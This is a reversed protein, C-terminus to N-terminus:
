SGGGVPIGVLKQAALAEPVTYDNADCLEWFATADSLFYYAIQDLRQNNLRPYYGQVPTTLRLPLRACTVTTGNPLTTQYTTLNAYRSGPFFM